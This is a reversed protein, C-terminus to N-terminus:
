LEEFEEEIGQIETLVSALKNEPTQPIVTKPSINTNFKSWDILKAQQWVKQLYQLLLKQDNFSDNEVCYLFQYILTPLEQLMQIDKPTYKVGLKLLLDRKDKAGLYKQLETDDLIDFLRKYLKMSEDIILLNDGRLDRAIKISFEEAAIIVSHLSVDTSVKQMNFTRSLILTDISALDLRFALIDNILCMCSPVMNMQVTRYIDHRKSFYGLSTNLAMALSTDLEQFKAILLNLKTINAPNPEDLEDERRKVLEFLSKGIEEIGLSYLVGFQLYKFVNETNIKTNGTVQLSITSFDKPIQPLEVEKVDDKSEKLLSNLLKAKGLTLGLESQLEKISCEKLIEISDLDASKIKDLLIASEDDTLKLKSLITKM